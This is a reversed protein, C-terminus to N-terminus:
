SYFSVMQCNLTKIVNLHVTSIELLRMKQRDLIIHMTCFRTDQYHHSAEKLFALRSNNEPDVNFDSFSSQGMDLNAM